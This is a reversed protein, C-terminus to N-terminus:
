LGGIKHNIDSGDTHPPASRPRRSVGGGAGYTGASSKGADGESSPVAAGEGFRKKLNGQGAALVHAEAERAATEVDGAELLALVRRHRAVWDVAEERTLASPWRGWTPILLWEAPELLAWSRRLLSSGAARVLADHFRANCAGVALRDGTLGARAGAEIQAEMEDRAARDSEPIGGAWREAVTRAAFGELLARFHFIEETEPATLTRVYFGRRPRHELWGQDALRFLSERVPSLSVDLARALSVEHVREGPALKGSRVAALVHSTVSHRLARDRVPTAEWPGREDGDRPSEIVADAM